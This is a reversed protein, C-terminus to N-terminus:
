HHNTLDFLCDSPAITEGDIVCRDIKLIQFTAKRSCYPDDFLWTDERSKEPHVFEVRFHGVLSIRDGDDNMEYRGSLEDIQSIPSRNTVRMGIVCPNGGLGKQFFAIEAQLTPRFNAAQVPNVGVLSVAVGAALGLARYDIKSM